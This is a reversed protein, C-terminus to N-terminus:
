APDLFALLEGAPEEEAMHHGCELGRGRLDAAWPHWVTLPDGYLDELDDRLAWLVLTPCGLRRGTSRDAEDHARDRGLGARYDELMAHVTAPDHSPSATTAAYAEEGMRDPSGGYWADPDVLIAREPKHPQAFFFWHWWARAFRADCRELAEVIPPVADLVALRTIAAPHDMAARFAVYAGRDHGVVAFRHHGLRRMLDTCDAATARKSYPAHDPTAPPKSPRGYGRLDPCAVTHGASALLPAVSAGTAHTRPHGRLLLVPTRTGGGPHHRVRLTVGTPLPLHDLALGPFM